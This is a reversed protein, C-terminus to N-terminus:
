PLINELFKGVNRCAFGIFDSISFIAQSEKDENDVEFHNNMGIKIKLRAHDSTEVKM